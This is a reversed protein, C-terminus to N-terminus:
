ASSSLSDASPRIQPLRPCTIRRVMGRLYVVLQSLGRRNLGGVFACKADLQIGSPLNVICDEAVRWPAQTAVPFYAEPAARFIGLPAGPGSCREDRRLTNWRTQSAAVPLVTHFANALPPITPAVAALAGSFPACV